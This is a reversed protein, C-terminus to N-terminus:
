RGEIRKFVMGTFEKKMLIEAKKTLIGTTLFLVPLKKMQGQVFASSLDKDNCKKKDIAKCYYSLGGLASPINIIFEAEKNARQIKKNLCSVGRKEFMGKISLLFTNQKIKTTNTQKIPETEKINKKETTQNKEKKINIKSKLILVVNEKVEEKPLLFWRWFLLKKEGVKAEFPKAFDKLRRLAVKTVPDLRSDLIVKEKKLIWMAKKEKEHLRGIYKELEGEQGKLYYFPSGGFKISSIIVEKKSALESLIASAMLIDTHIEQSIQSPILPGREKILRLATEKKSIFTEEVVMFFCFSNAYLYRTTLPADM